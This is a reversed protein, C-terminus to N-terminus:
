LNAASADDFPEVSITQSLVYRTGPVALPTNKSRPQAAAVGGPTPSPSLLSETGHVADEFSTSEVCVFRLYDSDDLDATARAIEIWPNWVVVDPVGATRHVCIVRRWEGDRVRVDNPVSLYIRDHEGDFRVAAPAASRPLEARGTPNDLVTSGEVPFQVTARRVDGVAFYNHLAGTVPVPAAASLTYALEMVLAEAQLEVRLEARFDVPWERRTSEDSDLALVAVTSAAADACSPEVVRWMRQRVIGHRPLPGPGFQPWCLPVGGRIPKSGDLAAKSSVFFVDRVPQPGSPCYSTVTAGYPEVEATSGNAHHLRVMQTGSGGGRM